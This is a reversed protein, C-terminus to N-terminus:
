DKVFRQTIIGNVQVFYIGSPLGALNIQTEKANPHLTTIQKSYIDTITVTTILETATITLSGLAPNPFVNIENKGVNMSPVSTLDCGIQVAKNLIPDIGHRGDTYSVYVVSDPQLGVNQTSDGNPYYVGLTSFGTTIDQSLKWYSVNGDAGSTPNGVIISGPMGHLIMACYEASSLTGLDVLIILKGNYPTPNGDVGAYTNQWYFTGPYTVDPVMLKLCEIRDPFFVNALQVPDIFMNFYRCDVIITSKNRLEHYMSDLQSPQINWLTIYGVDCPLVTWSVPYLSDVPFYYNFEELGSTSDTIYATETHIIGISDIYRVSTTTLFSDRAYMQRAMINRLLEPRGVSYYPRLSDEWQPPTLGDITLIKNGYYDFYATDINGLVYGGGYKGPVNGYYNSVTTGETHYDKLCATIKKYLLFLSKPQSVSLIPIVFRSLVTDWPTDEQYNNPYFYRVVNWYKFFMLMRNTSDPFSMRTDVNLEVSDFPFVLWGDYSTTYSNNQVWCEAHPRFNNKITDLQIQVDTRLTSSGIWSWDRNRKLEAPIMDPFSSTAIAMPGAAHLISDLVNNFDDSTVASEVEPLFKVLVSDWNVNCNSVNSHYYKVFGWVKCTYYMKQQLSPAQAFVTIPLVFLVLLIKKM